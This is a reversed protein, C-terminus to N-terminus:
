LQVMENGLESPPSQDSIWDGLMRAHPLEQAILRMHSIQLNRFAAVVGAGEAGDRQHAPLMAGFRERTEHM